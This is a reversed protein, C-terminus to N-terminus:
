NISFTNSEILKLNEEITDTGVLHNYETDDGIHVKTDNIYREGINERKFSEDRGVQSYLPNWNLDTSLSHYSNIFYDIAIDPLYQRINVRGAHPCRPNLNMPLFLLPIYNRPVYIINHCIGDGNYDLHGYLLTTDLITFRELFYKKIYLDIRIFLIYDYDNINSISELLKHTADMFSEESPFISDYFNSYIIYPNYWNLLMSDHEQNLKYSNIFIDTSINFQTKMHNILCLHSFSALKQRNTSNVSDSRGRTMQSGYRFSEGTLVLLCRM